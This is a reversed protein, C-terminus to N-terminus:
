LNWFEHLTKQRTKETAIRYETSLESLVSIKDVNAILSQMLLRRYYLKVCYIIGQDMPQIISTTNPPVWALKINSIDLKPHCAANDLFIIIHKNKKLMKSNFKILWDEMISGTM